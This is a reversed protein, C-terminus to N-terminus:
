VHTPLGCLCQYGNQRRDLGATSCDGSPVAGSLVPSVRGVHQLEGDDVVAWGIM